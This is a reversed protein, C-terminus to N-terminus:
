IVDTIYTAMERERDRDYQSRSLPDWELQGGKEAKVVRFLLLRPKKDLIQAGELIAVPHAIRLHIRV